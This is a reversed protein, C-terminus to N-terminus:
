DAKPRVDSVAVDPKGDLQPKLTLRIRHTRTREAGADAGVSMVVWKAEAKTGGKLALAMQLELEVPGITFQLREGQATDIARSLERRLQDIADALGLENM